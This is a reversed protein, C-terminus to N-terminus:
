SLFILCDLIGFQVMLNGLFCCCWRTALLLLLCGIPRRNVLLSGNLCLCPRLTPSRGIIFHLGIRLDLPPPLLAPYPEPLSSLCSLTRPALVFALVSAPVLECHGGFRVTRNGFNFWGTKVTKPCFCVHLVVTGPIARAGRQHGGPSVCLWLLLIWHILAYFNFSSVVSFFISSCKLV